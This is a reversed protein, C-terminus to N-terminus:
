TSNYSYPVLQWFLPYKEIQNFASPKETSDLFRMGVPVLRMEPNQTTM